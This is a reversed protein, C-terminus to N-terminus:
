KIKLMFCNQFSLRRQAVAVYKWYVNVQIYTVLGHKNPGLCLVNCKFPICFYTGSKNLDTEGVRKDSRNLKPCDEDVDMSQTRTHLYYLSQHTQLETCKCLSIQVKTANCHLLYWFGLSM